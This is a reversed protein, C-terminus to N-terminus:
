AEQQVEGQVVQYTHAQTLIEKPFSTLDTATLFVQQHQLVERLLHERRQADLEREVEWDWTAHWDGTRQREQPLITDGHVKQLRTYYSQFESALDHLYTTSWVSVAGELPVYFFFVLGAM